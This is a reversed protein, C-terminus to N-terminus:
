RASAEALRQKAASVAEEAVDGVTKTKGWRPGKTSAKDSILQKLQEIDSAGGKREFFRIAIVRNYWASANLQDRVLQTPPPTMQGMRTAYGELEEQAYDGGTPLKSFFESVVSPGGIALVLEGARWRLRQNDGSAVLPWLAPLAQSSKIDGVRDFAADRVEAPSASDLALEMIGPLDN